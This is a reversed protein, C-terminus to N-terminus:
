TKMLRFFMSNCDSNALYRVENVYNSFLLIAAVKMFFVYSPGNWCVALNTEVIDTLTNENRCLFM